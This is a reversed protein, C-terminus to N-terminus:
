FAMSAYNKTKRQTVTTLQYSTLVGLYNLVNDTNTM